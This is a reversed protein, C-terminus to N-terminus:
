FIETVADDEDNMLFDLAGENEDEPYSDIVKFNEIVEVPDNESLVLEICDLPLDVLKLTQQWVLQAKEM